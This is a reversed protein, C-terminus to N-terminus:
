GIIDLLFVVVFNWILSFFIFYGIILFDELLDLIYFILLLLYM